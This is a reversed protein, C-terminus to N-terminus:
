KKKSETPISKYVMPPPTKDETILKWNLDYYLYISNFDNIQDDRDVRLRYVQQSNYYVKTAEIVAYGTYKLQAYELVDYPVMVGTIMSAPMAQLVKGSNSIKPSSVANSKVTVLGSITITAVILCLVKISKMIREMFLHNGM